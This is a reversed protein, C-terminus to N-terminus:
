RTSAECASSTLLRQATFWGGLKHMIHQSEPLSFSIVDFLYNFTIFQTEICIHFRIFIEWKIMTKDLLLYESVVSCLEEGRGRQSASTLVRTQVFQICFCICTTLPCVPLLHFAMSKWGFPRDVYRWARHQPRQLDVQYFNFSSVNLTQPSTLFICDYLLRQLMWTILYTATNCGFVKIIKEVTKLLYTGCAQLPKIRPVPVIM